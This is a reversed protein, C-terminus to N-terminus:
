IFDKQSMGSDIWGQEQWSIGAYDDVLCVAEEIHQWVKDAPLCVPYDTEYQNSDTIQVQYLDDRGPTQQICVAYGFRDAWYEVSGHGFIAIVQETTLQAYDSGYLKIKEM